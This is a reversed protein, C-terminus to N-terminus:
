NPNVWEEFEGFMDLRERIFSRMFAAYPSSPQLMEEIQAKEATCDKGEERLDWYKNLLKYFTVTKSTLEYRRSECKMAQQETKTSYFCEEILEATNKARNVNKMDEQPVIRIKGNKVEQLILREPDEKCCDIIDKAYKKKNKMGNCNPCCLFLNDWSFKLDLYTGGEHPRLHEINYEKGAEGGCLYCMGYFDKDLLKVVGPVNYTATQGLKARNRQETLDEPEEPTRRIKIM